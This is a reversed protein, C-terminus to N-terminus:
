KGNTEARLADAVRELRMARSAKLLVVDGPKVLSKIAGAAAAVDAFEVVRNLGAARAAGAMVGAM